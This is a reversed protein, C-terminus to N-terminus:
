IDNIGHLWSPRAWMLYLIRSMKFQQSHKPELHKHNYFGPTSSNKLLIKSQQWNRKTRWSGGWASSPASKLRVRDQCFQAKDKSVQAKCQRLRWWPLAPCHPKFTTWRRRWLMLRKRPCWCINRLSPTPTAWHARFYKKIYKRFINSYGDLLISRNTQCPRLRSVFSINSTFMQCCNIQAM